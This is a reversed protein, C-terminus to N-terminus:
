AAVPVAVRELHTEIAAIFEPVFRLKARRTRDLFGATARASLATLDHALFDALPEFLEHVPWTSLQLTFAQDEHGWAASPWSGAGTRPMGAPEWVDSTTLRHALWEAVPVSVANGVLKWRPGNRKRGDVTAPATWDQEFGQIREADRLDPTGIEDSGLVWVAPPSPIGVTSGGKLTPVADVAWGLGRLGETWYFGCASADKLPREVVGADQAFLAPRPDRERSAVLLVRQRRQPLGFARTDVTRYAWTYGRRGFEGTLYSMANGRDLQLMFSVNELVVWTPQHPAQDLLEFVHEVLGSRGGRIGATRGAQSLDQCPFGATVVDAPPLGDLTTVDDHRAVTPFHEDLVLNASADNECLLVTEHGAAHFGVELGGIGAFLGAVRLRPPSPTPEAAGM